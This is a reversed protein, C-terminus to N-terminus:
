NQCDGLNETSKCLGTCTKNDWLLINKPNNSCQDVLFQTYRDGEVELTGPDDQTCTKCVWHYYSRSRVVSSRCFNALGCTVAGYPSHEYWMGDGCDACRDRCPKDLCQQVSINCPPLSSGDTLCSPWVRRFCSSDPNLHGNCTRCDMYFPANEDERCSGISECSDVVEVAKNERNGSFLEYTYNDGSVAILDGPGQLDCSYDTPWPNKDYYDWIRSNIIKWDGVNTNGAECTGGQAIKSTLLLFLTGIVYYLNVACWNSLSPSFRFMM